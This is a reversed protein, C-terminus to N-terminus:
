EVRYFFIKQANSKPKQGDQRFQYEFIKRLRTHSANKLLTDPQTTMLYVGKKMPFIVQDRLMAPDQYLRVSVKPHRYFFPQLMTRGQPDPYPGPPEAYVQVPGKRAAEALLHFVPFSQPAPKTSVIALLYANYLILGAWVALWGIKLAPTKKAWEYVREWGAAALFLLPWVMPFLFRLEKHGILSHGIFFPVIAWVLVHRRMVHAGLLFMTFLAISVPYKMAILAEPMYYWWPEIGFTAAKGEVLNVQFYRLPTLVFEGYFLSDVAISVGCAAAFGGLAMIIHRLPWHRSWLVWAAIGVFAFAMQFRLWFSLGFLIGAALPGLWAKKQPTLLFYIGGLLTLASWSESSFRVSLFPMFWGFFSAGLLLPLMAAPQQFDVSLRRSLRYFVWFSLGGSLLRLVLAWDLPNIIGIARCVQIFGMAVYPQFAPRIQAAYEWALADAPTLGLKHAAFELLQYHEDPHYYGRTYFAAIGFAIGGVILLTFPTTKATITNM